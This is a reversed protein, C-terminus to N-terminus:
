PDLKPQVWNKFLFDLIKPIHFSCIKICIFHTMKLIIFSYIFINFIQNYTIKRYLEMLIHYYYLEMLKRGNRIARWLFNNQQIWFPKLYPSFSSTHPALVPYAHWMEHFRGVWCHDQDYDVLPNHPNWRGWSEEWSFKCM